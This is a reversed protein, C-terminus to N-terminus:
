YPSQILVITYSVILSFMSLLIPPSIKYLGLPSASLQDHDLRTLFDKIIRHEHQDLIDDARLQATALSSRLEGVSNQVTSMLLVSAIMRYLFFILMLISFVIDIVHFPKGSYFGQIGFKVSDMLTYALTCIIFFQIGQNPILYPGFLSDARYVMSSINDYLLFSQKLKNYDSTKTDLDLEYTLSDNKPVIGIGLESSDDNTEKYQTQTQSPLETILLKKSLTKDIQVKLLQINMSLHYYVCAPTIDALLFFTATIFLYIFRVNIFVRLPIGVATDYYHSVIISKGALNIFTIEDESILIGVFVFLPALCFIFGLHYLVIMKKHEKGDTAFKYLHAPQEIKKFDTFFVLFKQRRLIYYAHIGIVMPNFSFLLFHPIVDRTSTMGRIAKHVQICEAITIVTSFGLILTASISRILLYPISEKPVPSCWNLLFGGYNTRFTFHYSYFSFQGLEICIFYLTHSSVNEM